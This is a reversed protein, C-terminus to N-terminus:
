KIVISFFGRSKLASNIKLSTELFGAMNLFKELALSGQTLNEVTLGVEILNKASFHTFREIDQEFIPM